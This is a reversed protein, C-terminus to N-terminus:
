KKIVKKGNVIVVGKYNNDVRQGNLNYVKGSNLLESEISNIGTTEDFFFVELGKASSGEPLLLYSKNVGFTYDVKKKQFGLKNSTTSYFLGYVRGYTEDTVTYEGTSTAVLLNDEVNDNEADAAAVTLEYEGEDGEIVLGTNAPVIKVQKKTFSSGNKETVIYAKVDSDTFDLAKTCSFSVAGRAGVVVKPAEDEVTTLKYLQIAEQGSKYYRFRTQNSAKNYRLTMTSGEFVAAIVADGDAISFTHTYTTADDTQKLGNDNNSVGIYLGSASQLTGATNDIYFVSTKNADTAKIENNAITVEITNGVADLTELSGDFAVSAAENVILYYGDTLDANDTVKVFANGEPEPKPWGTVTLTMDNANLTFTYTGALAIIMNAQNDTSLQINTSNEQTLEAPNSSYWQNAESVVKLETEADLEKTLKYIGDGEHTFEVMDDAWIETTAFSGALYYTPVPWGTVSLTMNEVDVIFTYESTKGAQIVFNKAGDGATLAIDTCWESHVGYTEGQGQTDGGYWITNGETDEKVIKFQAGNELNQGALTYTGDANKTMEIMDTGWNTWTGAVYYKDREVVEGKYVIIQTIQTNKANTVKLTYINGAVQYDEAIEYTNTGTAGTTATSVAQDGVFINQVVSASAGDRGVVEIKSVPFDFAPLTLYADKQGLILYKDPIKYSYGGGSTGAVKITYGNATFEAEDFGKESTPFGWENASTNFLFTTKDDKVIVVEGPVEITYKASAVQSADTGVYAIAKITTTESVTIAGTYETSENTPDTGDITYYITANETACTIEVSLAESYTDAAPTFVPAEVVSAPREFSVLKSSMDFEPTSKYMKVKGCVTVIDGVQLDAESSFDAGDLGKGSYVEMQTSTTGEDSIWYTISHYNSNYSDVQSIIGSVYVDNPSSATGLTNIYEIAEAVTFPNSATGPANPDITYTAEAVDSDDMGDKVAIAKITTTEDITIASDYEDSSDDPTSGDLTYYITAGATTCNITVSQAETYTGAAPSFTPTAVTPIVVSETEWTIKVEDLYMAGNASRFGIFEYDDDISLETSTGCVITGLLTGQNSSNYLDTAVSYASNKGYVNLTRGGVTNSNWTVTVKKAKGGSGTTVVGSNSNNSRLQIASNGGASNGAYVAGSTGTKGSWDSYSTGTIGTWSLSLVDDVTDAWAANAGGLLSLLLMTFLLHLKKMM